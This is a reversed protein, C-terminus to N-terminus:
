FGGSGGASCNMCKSPNAPTPTSCDLPCYIVRNFVHDNITDCMVTSGKVSMEGYGGTTAFASSCASNTSLWGPLPPFTQAVKPTTYDGTVCVQTITCDTTKPNMGDGAKLAYCLTFRGSCDVTVTDTSWPQAPAMTLSAPCMATTGSVVTSIAGSGGPMGAPGFLCPELNDIKWTGHSFCKCADAGDTAGPVPLTYGVCPGWGLTFEDLQTCTTMGDHCVGLNRNVRLGPWCAATMGVKPCPCGQRNKDDPCALTGGPPPPTPLTGGDLNCYMPPPDQLWFGDRDFGLDANGGPGGDIRGGTGSSCGVVFILAFLSRRM